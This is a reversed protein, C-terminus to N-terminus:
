IYTGGAAPNIGHRRGRAYQFLELQSLTPVAPGAYHKGDFLLFPVCRKGRVGLKQLDEPASIRSLKRSRLVREVSKPGLGPVRLLLERPARNIEMPFLDKQGLAWAIKPDRDRPLSGSEDLPLEDFRFGYFRLLWDAQYLRVERLPSEPFIHEMPTGRVPTFASYYARSLRYNRYLRDVANLLTRDTEGGPGVVFQTVLSARGRKAEILRAISKLREGLDNRLSKEPAIRVLANDTPAELNVSVRDALKVAEEIQADEIGPLIKLHIYGRYEHQTRLARVSELMRDMIRISNGALGSTLFLGRALEARDLELVTKVLEESKWTARRFDVGLGFPCYGCHMACSSTMMTRMLPQDGGASKAYYIGYRTTERRRTSPLGDQDHESGQGLINLKQQRDVM